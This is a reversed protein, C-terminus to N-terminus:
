ASWRYCAPAPVSPGSSIRSVQALIRAIWCLSILFYISYPAGARYFTEM